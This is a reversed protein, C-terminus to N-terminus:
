TSPGGPQGPSPGREVYRRGEAPWETQQEAGAGSLKQEQKITETAVVM